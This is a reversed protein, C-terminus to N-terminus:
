GEDREPAGSTQFAYDSVNAPGAPTDRLRGRMMRTTFQPRVYDTNSYPLVNQAHSTGGVFPIGGTLSASRRLHGLVGEYNAKLQSWSKSVSGVTEDCMQGLRAIIALCAQIAAGQVSGGAQDLCYVLEEDQMLPRRPDTDGLTFRVADLMSARPNGSYSFM